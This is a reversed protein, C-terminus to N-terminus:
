NGKRKKRFFIPALVIIVIVGGMILIGDTSGVQSQDEATPTATVQVRMSATTLGTAPIMPQNFAMIVLAGLILIIFLVATGLIQSSKM